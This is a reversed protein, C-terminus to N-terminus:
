FEWLDSASADDCDVFPNVECFGGPIAWRDVALSLDATLIHDRGRRYAIQMAEGILSSVIGVVGSSIYFLRALTSPDMLGIPVSICGKEVMQQDLRGCYGKFLRRDDKDTPDLPELDYPAILRDNLQANAKFISGAKDNGMLVLPAYGEDAIRKLAESAKWATTDGENNVLQQLEDFVILEVEGKKLFARARSKLTGESGVTAYEDGFAHLIDEWLRKPTANQQLVVHLVTYTDADLDLTEIYSEAARSKGSGTPGLIRIGRKRPKKKNKGVDALDLVKNAQGLQRLYDFIGHATTMRPHQIHISELALMKSVLMANTQPSYDEM